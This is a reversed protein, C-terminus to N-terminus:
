ENPHNWDDEEYLPKPLLNDMHKVFLLSLSIFVAVVIFKLTNNLDRSTERWNYREKGGYDGSESEAQENTDLVSRKEKKRQRTTSQHREIDM